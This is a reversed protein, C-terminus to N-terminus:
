KPGACRNCLRRFGFNCNSCYSCTWEGGPVNEKDPPVKWDTLPKGIIPKQMFSENFLPLLSPLETMLPLRYPATDESAASNVFVAYTFGNDSEPKRTSCRNCFIRFAFNLNSCQSCNWDGAVRKKIASPYKLKPTNAMQRCFHLSLAKVPVISFTLGWTQM